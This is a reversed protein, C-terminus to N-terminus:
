AKLGALLMDKAQNLKTALYSSGGRDPHVKQMLSRHAQKIDEVSAGPSLGLVDLAEERTMGAGNNRSTSKDGAGADSGSSGSAGENMSQGHVREIFSDLLRLSEADAILETRLSLLDSLSLQELQAGALVGQRVRGGMQGTDHDLWMSLWATEIDSKQGSRPGGGFRDAGPIHRAFTALRSLNGQFLAFAAVAAPIALGMRGTLLLVLAAISLLGGGTYRVIRALSAPPMSGAAYVLLIAAGLLCVFLAFFGM